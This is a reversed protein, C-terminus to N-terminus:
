ESIEVPQSDQTVGGYYVITVNASYVENQQLDSLTINANGSNPSKRTFSGNNQISNDVKMIVNRIADPCVPQEHKFSLVNM